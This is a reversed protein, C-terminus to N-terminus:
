TKALKACRDRLWRTSTIMKILTLRSTINGKCRGVFKACRNDGGITRNQDCGNCVSEAAHREQESLNSLTLDRAAVVQVGFQETAKAIAEDYWDPFESM